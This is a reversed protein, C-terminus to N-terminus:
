NLLTELKLLIKTLTVSNIKHLVETDKYWIFSGEETEFIQRTISNFYLITVKNNLLLIENLSKKNPFPEKLYIINM